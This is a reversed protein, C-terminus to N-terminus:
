RERPGSPPRDPAPIGKEEHSTGGPREPPPEYPEPENDREDNM